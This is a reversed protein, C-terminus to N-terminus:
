EEKDRSVDVQSELAFFRLCQGQSRERKCLKNDGPWWWTRCNQYPPLSMPEPQFELELQPKFLNSWRKGVWTGWRHFPFLLVSNVHSHNRPVERATWYNTGQAKVASPGPEVGPQPVLIGCATRCPGLFVWFCLFLFVFYFLCFVLHNHDPYLFARVQYAKLLYSHEETGMEERGMGM